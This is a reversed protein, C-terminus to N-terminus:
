LWDGFFIAPYFHLIQVSNARFNHAIQALHQTCIACTTHLSLQFIQQFDAFFQWFIACLHRTTGVFLKERKQKLFVTRYGYYLRTRQIILLTQMFCMSDTTNHTLHIICQYSCLAWNTCFNVARWGLVSFAFKLPFIYIDERLNCFKRVKCFFSHEALDCIKAFIARWPLIQSFTHNEASLRFKRLFQTGCSRSKRWPSYLLGDIQLYQMRASIHEDAYFVKRIIIHL